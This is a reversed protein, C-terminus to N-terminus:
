VHYGMFLCLLLARDWTVCGLGSAMITSAVISWGPTTSFTVAQASFFGDLANFPVGTLFSVLWLSAGYAVYFLAQPSLVAHATRMLTMRWGTRECRCPSSKDFSRAQDGSMAGM